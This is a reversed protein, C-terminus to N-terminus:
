LLTGQVDVKEGSEVLDNWCEIKSANM